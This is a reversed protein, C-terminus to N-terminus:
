ETPWGPPTGNPWLEGLIDAQGIATEDNWGGAQAADRLTAYDFWVSGVVAGENLQSASYALIMQELAQAVLSTAKDASEVQPLGAASACVAFGYGALNGQREASEILEMLRPLPDAGVLVERGLRASADSNAGAFAIQQLDNAALSPWQHSILAAVRAACRSLFLVKAWRPLLAIDTLTPIRPTNDMTMSRDPVAAEVQSM